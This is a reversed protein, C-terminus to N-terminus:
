KRAAEMNRGFQHLILKEVRGEDDLVFTIQADVVKYFFKTPSEAYVELEPQSTAQVLLRGEQLRVKLVFDPTLAYVGAYKELTAADVEVEKREQPPQIHEGFALRTVQEGFATVKMTATNSLVVVGINHKPVVALWAHYGGTMGNHWRTIGDRAIHWGLAMQQGEAPLPQKVRADRLAFAIDTDGDSLNAQIFKVMDNATSRIGGAGAFADFDWVPVEKGTADYGPVMRERMADNLTIRTDNLKLPAFIRAQLVDEYSKGWCDAVVEGLLGMAYNSYEYKGTGRPLEVEGLFALMKERDYDVYPRTPDAPRFNGPMRPLGSTHTALHLLTIPKDNYSPVTLAEPVHDRLPDELKVKAQRVADALLVGTFVKTVSGIEYVSEGDPKVKSGKKTEGYSLVTVEDGKVIGVVMGVVIDDDIFPNALANVREQLENATAPLWWSLLAALLLTFKTTSSM